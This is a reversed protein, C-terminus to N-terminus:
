SKNERPPNQFKLDQPEVITTPVFFRHFHFFVQQAGWKEEEEKPMRPSGTFRGSEYGKLIVRTKEPLGPQAINEVWIQIPKDLKKGDITDVQLTRTGSFTFDIRTGEITHYTGFPSGLLGPIAIFPDEPTQAFASSTLLTLIAPIIYKIKM